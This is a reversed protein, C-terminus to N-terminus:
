AIAGAARLWEAHEAAADARRADTYVELCGQRRFAGPAYRRALDEALDIGARTATHIARAQEPTAPTVGNIWNLVQGGNRGSAGQGLVGAELLAIGLEPRRQRVRNCSASSSASNTARCDGAGSCAFKPMFAPATVVTPAYGGFGEPRLVHM